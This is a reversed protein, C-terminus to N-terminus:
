VDPNRNREVVKAPGESRKAQLLKALRRARVESNGLKTSKNFFMGRERM